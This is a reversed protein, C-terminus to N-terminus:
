LHQPPKRIKIIQRLRLVFAFSIHTYTFCMNWYCSPKNEKVNTKREEEEEEKPHELESRRPSLPLITNEEVCVSLCVCATAPLPYGHIDKRVVVAVEHQQENRKPDCKRNRKKNQKKKKKEREDRWAGIEAM